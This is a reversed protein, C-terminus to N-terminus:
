KRVTLLVYLGIAIFVLNGLWAALMPELSGQHGMVQGTRILIFYIFSVMLSIGFNLGVGGRKKRSALPAGLLVVIFNAFPMAIKLDIDVIWKKADGGISQLETIFKKLEWYSMEEPKKQLEFLYDPEIQLMSLTSDKFHSIIEEGERFQRVTGKHAIWVSDKWNMRAADIREILQSGRFTKISVTRAEKTKGNFYKISLKRDEKDQRYLNSRSKQNPRTNKNIEYRKIDLRRQNAVPVILENFFGALISILLASAFIPRLIRYLSIGASLQAVIENNQAFGSLSFLTALLMAVPLTLSIIYPIYYLYYYGVQSLSAGRDLFRSLNEIVDVM